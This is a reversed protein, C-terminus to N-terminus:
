VITVPVDATLVRMGASANFRLGQWSSWFPELGSALAEEGSALMQQKSNGTNIFELNEKSGVWTKGIAVRNLWNKGNKFLDSKYKESYSM